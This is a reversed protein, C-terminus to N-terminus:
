ERQASPLRQRLLDLGQLAVAIRLQAAPDGLSRGLLQEIRDLRYYLSRREVHLAQATRAKHFGHRAFVRLTELLTSRRPDAAALLAGLESEVFGALAPGEGLRGLLLRLGIDDVHHLGPSRETRVGHAAAESAETLARRLDEATTPRSAGVCVLLGPLREATRELVETTIQELRARLLADEPAELIAIVLSGVVACLGPTAAESLSIRTSDLIHELARRRASANDYPPQGASVEAAEVVVAVLRPERLNAGLSRARALVERANRWRGQWVDAILDTRAGDALTGSDQAPMLALGVAACARDLALPDLEDIPSSIALIHIRGWVEERVRVSVWACDAEVGADPHNTGHGHREWRELVTALPSSHAALAVVQHAADEFVVPNNVIEALTELVPGPGTGGLVLDSFRRAIADVKAMQQAQRQLLAEAEKQETVDFMVGQVLVPVGDDDRVIKVRDHIWIVSGDPRIFRYEDVGVSASALMAQYNRSMQGADEPHVHESWTADFWASEPLQLIEHTQPSVFLTTAEADPQNIYFVAPIQEVLAQYSARLTDVTPTAPESMM